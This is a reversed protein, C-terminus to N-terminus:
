RFAASSVVIWATREKAALNKRAAAIDERDEDSLRRSGNKARVQVAEAALQAFFASRRNRGVMLDIQRILDSPLTVQIKRRMREHSM